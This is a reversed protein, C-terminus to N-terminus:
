KGGKKNLITFSNIGFKHVVYGNDKAWKNIQDSTTVPKGNHVVPKNVSLLGAGVEVLAGNRFSFVKNSGINGLDQPNIGGMYSKLGSAPQYESLEFVPASQLNDIPKANPSTYGNGAKNYEDKKLLAQGFYYDVEKRSIGLEKVSQNAIKDYIAKDEPTRFHLSGGRDAWAVKEVDQTSQMIAQQAPAYRLRKNEEEQARVGAWGPAASIQASQLSTARQLANDYLGAQGTAMTGYMNGIGERDQRQGWKQETGYQGNNFTPVEFQTQSYPSLLAAIRPDMNQPDAVNNASMDVPIPNNKYQEELYKTIDMTQQSQERALRNTALSDELQRKEFGMREKEFGVRQQEMALRKDDLKKQQNQALMSMFSNGIQEGWNYYGM